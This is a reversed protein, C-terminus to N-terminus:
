GFYKNILDKIEFDIDENNMIRNYYSDKFFPETIKGVELNMYVREYENESSWIVTKDNFYTKINKLEKKKINKLILELVDYDNNLCFHYIRNTQTTTGEMIDTYEYYVEMCDLCYDYDYDFLASLISINFDDEEDLDIEKAQEYIKELMNYDNTEAIYKYDIESFIMEYCCMELIREAVITEHRLAYNFAYTALGCYQDSILSLKSEGEKLYDEFTKLNQFLDYIEENIKRNKILEKLREVTCMTFDYDEDNKIDNMVFEIARYEAIFDTDVKALIIDLEHDHFPGYGYEEGDLYKECMEYYKKNMDNQLKDLEMLSYDKYYLKYYEVKSSFLEEILKKKNFM